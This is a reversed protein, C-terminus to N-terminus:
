EFGWGGLAKIALKYNTAKRKLEEYHADYGKISIRLPIEYRCKKLEAHANKRLTRNKEMQYKIVILTNQLQERPEDLSPPTIM